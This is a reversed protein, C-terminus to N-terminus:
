WERTGKATMGALAPYAAPDANLPLRSADAVVREVFSAADARAARRLASEGHVPCVPAVGSALGGALFDAVDLCPCDTRGLNVLMSRVLAKM